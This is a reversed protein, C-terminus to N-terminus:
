TFSAVGRNTAANWLLRTCFSARVEHYYSNRDPGKTIRRFGWANVLRIFSNYNTYEFYKPIVHQVFANPNHVKWSRGHPLWSIIHQFEATSLMAHLKAPLKQIRISSPNQNSQQQAVLIAETTPRIHSYDRYVYRPKQSKASVRESDKDNSKKLGGDDGREVNGSSSNSAVNSPPKSVSLTSQKRGSTEEERQAVENDEKAYPTTM